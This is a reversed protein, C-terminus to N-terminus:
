GRIREACTMCVKRKNGRASYVKGCVNCFKLDLLGTERALRDIDVRNNGLNIKIQLAPTEDDLYFLAYRYRCGVIRYGSKKSEREILGYEALKDFGNPERYNDSWKECRVGVQYVQCDNCAACFGKLNNERGLDLYETGYLRCLFVICFLEKRLSATMNYKRCASIIFDIDKQYLCVCEVSRLYNIGTYKESFYDFAQKRTIGGERTNMHDLYLDACIDPEYGSRVLLNRIRANCEKYKELNDVVMQENCYVTYLM